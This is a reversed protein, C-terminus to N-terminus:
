VYNKKEKFIKEMNKIDENRDDSRLRIHYIEEEPIESVSKDGMEYFINNNCINKRKANKNIDIKQQNLFYGLAVDDVIQMPFSGSNKSLIEALDESLFYGSGSAFNFDIGNMHYRGIIGCYFKIRPKDQLFNLMNNVNVFSGLNSRYIYDFEYNKKIWDIAMVTRLGLNEYGDEVPLILDCGNFEIEDSSTRNKYFIIKVESSAYKFWTNKISEELLKYTLNTSSMVLVIIKM